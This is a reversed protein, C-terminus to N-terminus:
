GLELRGATADLKARRGIWLARNRPGHGVPAEAVMPVSLRLLRERVVAQVSPPREDQCDTFDGLVVGALRTLAGALHLQTLARDVRYPREGVEEVLLIAGTLDFAWPTGLLRSVLELNGGLLPGECVGATVTELGSLRAPRGELLDCLAQVDSEALTALQTAVPGHVSPLGLKALYGHLATVDSFGIVPKPARLLKTADLDPLIRMLGYGGRACWIAQISDDDFAQQLEDRRAADSGALFGQQEFIRASFDLQYRAQLRAIGREFTEKPVPGSPAVIRIRDGPLLPKM